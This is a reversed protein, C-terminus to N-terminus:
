PSDRMWDELTTQGRADVLGTARVGLLRVARGDALFPELLDLALQEVLATARFPYALSRARTHTDFDEFRVKLTVTRALLGESQLRGGVQKALDVTEARLKAPDTVDDMFTSENGISKPPGEWPVVPSADLGLAVLRFWGASSGLLEQLRVEPAEALQAITEIGAETLRAETKPGIGPIRRAPLPSLIERAREPAVISVGGPKRLDSAIKATVKGQAAGVSCGLGEAARVAEQIRRAHQELDGETAVRSTADLYTEDLGAQEMADGFSRLTDMVHGSVKWYHDFDPFLYVGQPCRAWAQSIPMASRVGFKRPDAGVIVPKGKLEPRRAQEVSAYFADM